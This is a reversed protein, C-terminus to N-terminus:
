FEKEFVQGKGIDLLMWTKILLKMEIRSFLETKTITNKNTYPLVLFSFQIAPINCSEQAYSEM